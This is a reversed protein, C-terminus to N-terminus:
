FGGLKGDHFDELSFDEYELPSHTENLTIELTMVTPMPINYLTPIYDVESPYTINLSTMVVPIRHINQIAGSRVVGGSSGQDASYASLLLVDPPAGLVGGTLGSRTESRNLSTNKVKPGSSRSLNDSFGSDFRGASGGGNPRGSGGAGSLEGTPSQSSAKALHSLSGSRGFYPMTWTRLRQLSEINTNAEEQSRSIFKVNSLQFIRSATGQYMYIAGPMHMPEFTKYMVTRSESVDPTVNFVVKIGTNRQQELKVKFPNEM